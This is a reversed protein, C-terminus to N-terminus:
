PSEKRVQPIESVTPPENQIQRPCVTASIRSMMTIVIEECETPDSSSCESLSCMDLIIM